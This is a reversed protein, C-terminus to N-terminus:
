GTLLNLNCNYGPQVAHSPETQNLQVHLSCQVMPNHTLLPIALLKLVSNEITSNSVLCGFTSVNYICTCKLGCYVTNKSLLYPLYGIHSAMNRGIM